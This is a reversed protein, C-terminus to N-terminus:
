RKEENLWMHIATTSNEPESRVYAALEKKLALSRQAAAAVSALAPMPKSEIHGPEPAQGASASLHAPDASALIRKQIPRITLLYVLIFLALLVGYRIYPAFDDLGKRTRDMVSVATPGDEAPRDFSLNQVTVVDGRASNFGIAAQALSTINQIEDPRWKRHTTVWHGGQWVREVADDLVLAATIRRTGGAPEITHRTTRNVGYTASETSTSSGSAASATAPAKKAAPLNSSTGPVGGISGNPGSSEESRQMTLPVSVDPDYKETNEETSGTEYEVNVTARLNDAGVVPSLTDMIRRTLQKDLGDSDDGDADTGLSRNSDADVIVVDKPDLQDVAGSVLRAIQQAEARSLTGSRLRLAVSSKAGRDQDTFVSNNAMVLHVRASKVNRLTQITRELEGELARQYNVKEDFETEGWSTKDFIEFGIRGSHPSDQAAVELRAADLQSSPVSITTGDPSVQAPINKAALQAVIAQVDGAELGTMVPKYTPTAIFNACVGCAVVTVALGVGLFRRQQQTLRSWFTKARSLIDNGSKALSSVPVPQNVAM